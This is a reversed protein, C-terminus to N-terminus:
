KAAKTDDLARIVRDTIDIRPNFWVVQDNQFVVDLKDSEAIQRVAQNARAIIASFEENQRSQLDERFERQRRQLDRNLDNYERERRTRQSESMTVANKDLDEQIKKLQEGLKGLEQDRKSFEAEIKKRARQAPTADRLIRDLSVLGLRPQIQAPAQAQAQAMWAPALM